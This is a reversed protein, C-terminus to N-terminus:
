LLYCFWLSLWEICSVVCLLMVANAVLNSYSYAKVESTTLKSPDLVSQLVCLLLVPVLLILTMLCM